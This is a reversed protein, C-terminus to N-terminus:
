PQDPSILILRSFYSRYRKSDRTLLKHGAVLAHAGIYFDPLPSTRSGGRHRYEVFARGALFAAHWPLDEREYLDGPLRRELDAISAYGVSLEAYVIPNIVVRGASFAAELARASWGASPSDPMAVDILINSDVLTSTM